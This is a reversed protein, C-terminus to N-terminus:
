RETQARHHKAPLCRFLIGEAHDVSRDFDTDVEDICGIYIRAGARFLNEAFRKLAIAPPISDDERCFPVKRDVLLIGVGPAIRAAVQDSGTLVRQPSQSGIVDIEILNVAGIRLDGDVLGQGGEILEHPLALHAVRAGGSKGCPLAHLCEHDGTLAAESGEGALLRRVVEEVAPDLPFEDRKTSGIADGNNWPTRKCTAQEGSGIGRVVGIRLAFSECRLGVRLLSTTVTGGSQFHDILEHGKGFLSTYLGGLIGEGPIHSLWADAAGNNTRTGDLLEVVVDGCQVDFDALGVAFDNVPVDRRGAPHGRVVVLCVEPWM